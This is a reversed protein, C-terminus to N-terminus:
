RRRHATPRRESVERAVLRVDDRPPAEPQRHFPLLRPMLGRVVTEDLWSIAQALEDRLDPPAAALVRELEEASAALARASPSTAGADEIEAIRSRARRVQQFAAEVTVIPDAVRGAVQEAPAVTVNLPLEFEHAVLSPLAVYSLAVQAVTMGGPPVVGAVDVEIVLRRREGHNLDGLDVLVGHAIPETPLDNVVTLSSVCEAQRVQLAVSQVAAQLLGDVEGALLAAAVDPGTAALAAGVGGHALASPLRPDAHTGLALTTTTIGHARARQARRELERADEIGGDAHGDSIVIVTAGHDAIMWGAETLGRGYGASLNSGEGPEIQAIAERAATKDGLPAAPVVVEAEGDFTVLGFQDGADLWEVLRDIAIQASRLTTGRMSASRDLVIAVAAPARPPRSAPPPAALELMLTLRDDQELAVLDFDLYTTLRM